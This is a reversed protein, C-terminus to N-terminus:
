LSSRCDFCGDQREWKDVVHARDLCAMGDDICRACIMFEDGKCAICHAATKCDDVCMICVDCFGRNQSFMSSENPGSYLTDLPVRIDNQLVADEFARNLETGGFRSAWWYPTRGFIDKAKILHPDRQLLFQAAFRHNNRAAAFIPSADYIDKADIAAGYELLKKVAKIKGARAALFLPTRGTHDRADIEVGPTGLLFEIMGILGNSAAAHLATLGTRDSGKSASRGHEMLLKVVDLNGGASADHMPSWRSADDRAVCCGEEELLRRAVELHGGNSAAQLATWGMRTVKAANAGKGLLLKVIDVHGDLSATLLPPSDWKDTAEIDAGHEILLAAIELHGLEAAVCLPPKEDDPERVEDVKAGGALLAEVAQIQGSDIALLLPTYDFYDRSSMNAGAKLLTELTETNGCEAALHLPTRSREGGTLADVDLGHDLFASVVPSSGEEAATHLPTHGHEDEASTDAGRDLLFKVVDVHGNAAARHLATAGRSRAQLAAGNEILYKVTSLHGAGSACGLLTERSSDRKNINWGDPLHLFLQQLCDQRGLEAALSIVDRDHVCTGRTLARQIADPRNNEVAWYLVTGRNCRVNFRYLTSNFATFLQRNTVVVAAIDCEEELCSVIRDLLENPLDLLHM